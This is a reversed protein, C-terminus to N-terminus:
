IKGRPRFSNYRLFFQSVCKYRWACGSHPVTKQAKKARKRVASKVKQTIKVDIIRTATLKFRCRVLCIATVPDKYATLFEAEFVLDPASKYLSAWHQLHGPITKTEICNAGVPNKEGDFMSVTYFDETCYDEYMSRLKKMDGTNVINLYMQAYTRRVDTIYVRRKIEYKLPKKKNLVLKDRHRVIQVSRSSASEPAETM